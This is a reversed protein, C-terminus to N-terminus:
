KTMSLIDNMYIMTDCQTYRDCQQECVDLQKSIQEQSLQEIDAINLNKCYSM